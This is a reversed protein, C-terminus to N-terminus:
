TEANPEAMWARDLMQLMAQIRRDQRLPGLVDPFFYRIHETSFSRWDRVRGFAELAADTDGLAAHVLGASFPADSPDIRSLTAAASEARGSAIRTLALVAEVEAHSPTGRPSALTRAKELAADAESMRRLHYLVLGEMFHALGYDPRIERARVAELLAAGADGNALLTEALYARFAPALPDLEAARRAPALAAGPDGRLLHVWALWAHAEAYSPALEVATALERLAAPGHQRISHIIGLSAHTQGLDPGLEVSRKAADMPEPASAPRDYDYFELLSLADALGAWALAYQPDRSIAHQFYDISRVVEHRTRQDLLGRGQAYLRFATLDSTAEQGVRERESPTLEARLTTAIKVALEGQIDFINEVSLDRDYREVWRHTDSGADILQVNLRVRGAATQVAGQVVTGVGLERAIDRVARGSKRYREVATRSIVTLAAIRSLETLLDEHLGAAFAAADASGGLNEFPLVAIARVPLEAADRGSAGATPQSTGEQAERLQHVIRQLEPGPEAGFEEELLVAHHHAARLAEARNGAAALASLLECAVHSDYPDEAARVRWWASAADVDGREQAQRALAELARYYGWQLRDRERDVRQEFEPSGGLRFGDLFPGGYLEVATEYDEEALADVFRCVDCSVAATNFRLDAGITILADDGMANRVDYVCSTLRNRATKEPTDPWLFGVLKGRSLTSSPATALLALLALPHRRSAISSIEGGAAVAVAGGFLKLQVMYEAISPSKVCAPGPMSVGAM